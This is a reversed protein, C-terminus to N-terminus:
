FFLSFRIQPGWEQITYKRDGSPASMALRTFRVGPGIAMNPCVFYRIGCMLEPLYYGTFRGGNSGQDLDAYGIGLLVFPVVSDQLINGFNWLAMLRLDIMTAGSVKSYGLSLGPEFSVSVIRHYSFDVRTTTTNESSSSGGSSLSSREHILSGDFSIEHRINRQSLKEFDKVVRECSVPYAFVTPSDKKEVDGAFVGTFFLFSFVFIACNSFERM